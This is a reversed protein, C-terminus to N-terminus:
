MSQIIEGNMMMRAQSSGIMNVFSEFSKWLPAAEMHAEIGEVRRVIGQGPVPIMMVGIVDAPSRFPAPRGLANLIVIDELAQGTGLQLIRSCKGGITRPALEILWVGYENIRCEAHVPGHVLGYVACAARVSDTM